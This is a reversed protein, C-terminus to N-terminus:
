KMDVTLYHGGSHKALGGLVTPPLNLVLSRRRTRGPVRRWGLRSARPGRAAFSFSCHDRKGAPTEDCAALLAAMEDGTLARGAAPKDPESPVRPVARLEELHEATILQKVKARRYLGLMMGRLRNVSEPKYDLEPLRKLLYSLHEDRLATWPVESADEYGLARAVVRLDSEATATSHGEARGLLYARAARADNLTAEPLPEVEMWDPQATM